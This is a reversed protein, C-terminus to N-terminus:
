PCDKGERGWRTRIRGRTGNTEALNWPRGSRSAHVAPREEGDAWLPSGYLQGFPEQYQHGDRLLHFIGQLNVNAYPKNSNGGNRKPREMAMVM